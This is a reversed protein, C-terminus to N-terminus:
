AEQFKTFAVPVFPEILRPPPGGFKEVFPRCFTYRASPAHGNRNRVFLSPAAGHALLRSIMRNDNAVHLPTNFEHDLANTDAGSEILITVARHRDFSVARHLATKMGEARANIDPKHRLLAILVRTDMVSWYLPTMRSSDMEDIDAKFAVLLDIISISESIRKYSHRVIWSSCTALTLANYLRFDMNPDCKSELLLRVRPVDCQEIAEELNKKREEASM